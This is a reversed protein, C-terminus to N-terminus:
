AAEAEQYLMGRTVTAWIARAEEADDDDSAPAPAPPTPAPTTGSPPGARDRADLAALSYNQQQLYPTDGGKVPQHDLERRAENPALIGSKVGEGLTKIQTATDMRLLARLDLEVGLVRPGRGDIADKPTDLGLGEDMCLEWQEILSQLCDSYYIQNLLEGNQYTPPTGIGIKFPPVHFVSCVTEATWRLQEIMQSDQATMRLPEFKMDNGLVAVKGANEGTFGLDWQEKIRKATDPDINAPATLIGSPQSGNGFFHAANRTIRLGVEAAMGAAYIPSVGVLPHWLCNMRDHIIESAPVQVGTGTIGTLNDAKLDYFVDGDETVQVVVRTPDLLYLQTVVGRSDRVKLAYTNGRILKSLTWWEIFQIRNQYRNPKRLVPSFSASETEAWIGNADREVLRPRLKGIDNSILTLCAYVAHHALVTDTTWEIDRQWAGAFPERIIPWWGGRNSPIPSAPVRKIQLGSGPGWRVELGFARLGFGRM